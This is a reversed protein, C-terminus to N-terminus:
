WIVPKNRFSTVWSCRSPISAYPLAPLFPGLKWLRQSHVTRWCKWMSVLKSVSQVGDKKKKKPKKSCLCSQNLWTYFSLVGITLRLPFNLQSYICSVLRFVGSRSCWLDSDILVSDNNSETTRLTKSEIISSHHRGHHLLANSLAPYCKKVIMESYLKRLLLSFDIGQTQDLIPDMKLALESCSEKMFIPLDVLSLEDQSIFLAM